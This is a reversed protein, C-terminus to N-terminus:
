HFLPMDALAFYWLQAIYDKPTICAASLKGAEATQRLKSYSINNLVQMHWSAAHRDRCLVRPQKLGSQFSEDAMLLLSLAMDLPHM